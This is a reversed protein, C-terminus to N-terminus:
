RCYNQKKSNYEGSLSGTYATTAYQFINQLPKYDDRESATLLFHLRTTDATKLFATYEDWRFSLASLSDTASNKITNFERQWKIGPTIGKLHKFSYSLSFLPRIFQTTSITSQSQLLSSTSIFNWAKFNLNGNLSHRFGSYFNTRQFFSFNYFM